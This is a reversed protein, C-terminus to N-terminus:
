PPPWQHQPPLGNRFDQLQAIWQQLQPITFPGPAPPPEGPQPPTQLRNLEARYFSIFQQAMRGPLRRIRSLLAIQEGNRNTPDPNQYRPHSRIADPDYLGVDPMRPHFNPPPYSVNPLKPLDPDNDLPDIFLFGAHDPDRLAAMATILQQHALDRGATSTFYEPDLRWWREARPSANNGYGLRHYQWANDLMETAARLRYEGGGLNQLLPYRRTLTAAGERVGEWMDLQRDLAIALGNPEAISPGRVLQEVPPTPLTSWGPFVSDLQPRANNAISGAQWGYPTPDAGLGSRAEAPRWASYRANVQARVKWAGVTGMNIILAMVMLM